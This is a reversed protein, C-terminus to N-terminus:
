LLRDQRQVAEQFAPGHGNEVDVAIVAAIADQAIPLEIRGQNARATEDQEVVGRVTGLLDGGGQGFELLGAGVLRLGFLLGGGGHLVLELSLKVRTGLSQWSSGREWARGPFASVRPEAECTVSTSTSYEWMRGM